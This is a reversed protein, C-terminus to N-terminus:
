ELDRLEVKRFYLEAAEIELAIRGRTIPRSTSPKEQDVLRIRHRHIWSVMAMTTVLGLRLTRMVTDKPEGSQM